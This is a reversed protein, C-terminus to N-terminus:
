RPQTSTEHQLEELLRRAVAKAQGHWWSSGAAEYADLLARAYRTPCAGPDAGLKKRLSTLEEELEEMKAEHANRWSRGEPVRGTHRFVYRSRGSQAMAQLEAVLLERFESRLEALREHLKDNRSMRM